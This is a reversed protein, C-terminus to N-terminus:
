YSGSIRRLEGCAKDRNKDLIMLANLIILRYQEIDHPELVPIKWFDRYASPVLLSLVASTGPEMGAGRVREHLSNSMFSIGGADESILKALDAIIRVKELSSDVEKLKNGLEIIRDAFGATAGALQGKVQPLTNNAFRCEIGLNKAAEVLASAVVSNDVGEQARVLFTFDKISDAMSPIYAKSEVIITPATTLGIEEMIRKKDWAAVNGEFDEDPGIGGETCNVTMMVSVPIGNVDIVIGAVKDLKGPFDQCTAHFCAQEKRLFTDMVALAAAGQFAVATEHVGQGYMRGFVKLAIRQTYIGDEGSAAKMLEAEMPTIGRRAWARGVGGGYTEVSIIGTYPDGTVSRIRTDVQVVERIISAAVAFGVSDDQVFGSHSHVHGVGVHGAVGFVGRLERSLRLSFGDM